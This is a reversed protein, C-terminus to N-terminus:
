PARTIDGLPARAECDLRILREMVLQRVTRLASAMDVVRARLAAHGEM